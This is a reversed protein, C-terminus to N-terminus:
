IYMALVEEALGIQDGDQSLFCDKSVVLWDV